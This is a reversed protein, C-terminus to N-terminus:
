FILSSCCTELGEEDRPGLAQANSGSYVWTDTGVSAWDRIREEREDMDSDSDAAFPVFAQGNVEGLHQQHAPLPDKKRKTLTRQTSERLKKKVFYRGWAEKEVPDESDHEFFINAVDEEQIDEPTTMCKWLSDARWMPMGRGATPVVWCAAPYFVGTQLMKTLVQLLPIENRPASNPMKREYFIHAKQYLNRMDLLVKGKLDGKGHKIYEMKGTEIQEQSVNHSILRFHPAGEDKTCYGIMGDITHLGIGTLGRCMVNMGAPTHDKTWGLAKKVEEAVARTSKAVLRAVGQFHLNDENYGKETSGIGQICRFKFFNEMRELIKDGQINRKKLSVTISVDREVGEFGGEPEARILCEAEPADVATAGPQLMIDNGLRDIFHQVPKYDKDSAAPKKRAAKKAPTGAAKAKGPRKKAPRRTEACSDSDNDASSADSRLAEDASDSEMGVSDNDTGDIGSLNPSPVHM